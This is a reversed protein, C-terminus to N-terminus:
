LSHSMPSMESARPFRSQSHCGVVLFSHTHPSRYLHLEICVDL